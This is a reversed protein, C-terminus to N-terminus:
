GLTAYSLNSGDHLQNLPSIVPEEEARTMQEETWTHKQTM